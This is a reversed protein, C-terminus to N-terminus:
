NEEINQWFVEFSGELVRKVDEELVCQLSRMFFERGQEKKIEFAKFMEYVEKSIDTDFVGSDDTCISMPYKEKFFLGFHHENLNKLQMTCFNSSPCIEIPIRLKLAFELLEKDFYNFHGLRDPQFELIDMSEAKCVEGPIEAVHIVTKFGKKKAELFIKSFDRFSNKYPNGSYDIGLIYKSYLPNKKFAEMLELTTQAQELSRSRDISLILRIIMPHHKQFTIIESLVTELYEEYSYVGPRQKPTTRIELYIVNQLSFDELMERTVRRIPSLDVLVKHILDFIKFCSTTDRTFHEEFAFPLGKQLSLEKLTQFRFSGNLHAHLEIKPIKQCFELSIPNFNTFIM